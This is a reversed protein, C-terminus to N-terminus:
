PRVDAADPRGAVAWEEELPLEVARPQGGRMLAFDTAQKAGGQKARVVPRWMHDFGVMEAYPDVQATRLMTHQQSETILSHGCIALELSGDSDLLRM